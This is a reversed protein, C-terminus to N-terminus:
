LPLFQALRRKAAEAISTTTEEPFDKPLQRLTGDIREAVNPWELWSQEYTFDIAGSSERQLKGVLRGNMYVNLPIRVRVRAM